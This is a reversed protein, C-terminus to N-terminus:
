AISNRNLIMTLCIAMLIIAIVTPLVSFIKSAVATPKHKIIEFSEKNDPNLISIISIYGLFFLAVTTLVIFVIIQIFYKGNAFIGILFWNGLIDRSAFTLGILSCIGAGKTNNTIFLGASVSLLIVALLCLYEQRPFIPRIAIFSLMFVYTCYGLSALALLIYKTM